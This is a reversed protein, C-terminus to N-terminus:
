DTVYITCRVVAGDEKAYLIAKGKKLATIKGSSDVTIVKSNSTSWTPKQKSSVDAKMTYSEGVRLILEEASLEITPSKVIIECTVSVGDITATVTASGNKIATVLGNNDVIAISKRNVKWKPQFGSSVTATLAVQQGRYLTVSTKNLTVTPSKVILSCTVKTGDASATITAEGPKLTTITGDETVTAISKRNIKYSVKSGNSTTASLKIKEGRELSISSHSLRITTENVVIKCIAEANKIKSTILTTGARKATVNGYADVSAVKTDSSKWTPKKGTSTFAIIGHVDGINLTKSYTSLLIYSINSASALSHQTPLFLSFTLLFVCISKLSKKLYLM